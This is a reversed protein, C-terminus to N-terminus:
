VDEATKALNGQPRNPFALDEFTAEAM